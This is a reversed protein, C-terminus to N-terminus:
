GTMATSLMLNPRPPLGGRRRPTATCRMLCSEGYIAPTGAGGRLFGYRASSLYPRLPSNVRKFTINASIIDLFDSTGPYYPLVFTIKAGKKVLGRTLGYCATGLGGSSYPPFEWGFMLVHVM